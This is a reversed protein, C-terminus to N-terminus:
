ANENKTWIFCNKNQLNFYKFKGHKFFKQGNNTLYIQM